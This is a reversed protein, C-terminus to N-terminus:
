GVKNLQIQVNSKFGGETQRSLYIASSSLRYKGDIKYDKTYFTDDSIITFLKNPTFINIDVDTFVLGVNRKSEKISYILQSHQYPNNVVYTKEINYDGITDHKIEGSGRIVTTIKGGAVYDISSDNDAIEFDRANLIYVKNEEDCFCGTQTLSGAEDMKELYINVTGLEGKELCRGLNGKNILYTRKPDMYFLYPYEYIGYYENAKQINFGLDGYPIAYTKGINNAVADMLVGTFNRQKFFQYICDNLGGDIIFSSNIKYKNLQESNYMYLTIPILSQTYNEVESGMANQTDSVPLKNANITNINSENIVKLHLTAYEINQLTDNDSYSFDEDGSIYGVVNRYITFTAMATNINTILKEYNNRQVVATMMYSPMINNEYDNSISLSRILTNSITIQTLNDDTFTILVDSIKYGHRELNVAPRIM